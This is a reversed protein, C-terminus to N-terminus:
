EAKQVWVAREGLLSMALILKQSNEKNLKLTKKTKTAPEAHQAHEDGGDNSTEAIM